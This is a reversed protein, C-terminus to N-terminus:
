KRWNQLHKRISLVVFILVLTSLLSFFGAPFFQFTFLWRYTFFADLILILLIGFYAPFLRDKFMGAACLLLLIGFVLGMILSTTSAAQVHGIFGGILIIIGYIFTLWSPIKM